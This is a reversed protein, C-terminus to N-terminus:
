TSTPWVDLRSRIGTNTNPFRIQQSVSQALIGPKRDGACSLCVSAWM